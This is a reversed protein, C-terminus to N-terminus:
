FVPMSVGAASEASAAEEWLMILHWGLVVLLSLEPFSLAVPEINLYKNHQFCMLPIEEQSFWVWESRWISTKQFILQQGDLFTVISKRGRKVSAIEAQYPLTTIVTDGNWMGRRTFAWQGDGAEGIDIARGMMNDIMGTQRYLKALVEDGSRLEFEREWWKVRKWQMEQGVAERISKM